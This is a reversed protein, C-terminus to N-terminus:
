HNWRYTFYNEIKKLMSIQVPDGHNFYRIAGFFCQLKNGEGPKEDLKLMKNLIRIFMKMIVSFMAVGLIFGVCMVSREFNNVPYYDGLGITSLTTFAWYMMILIVEAGSRQDM